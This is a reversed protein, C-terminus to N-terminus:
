ELEVGPAPGVSEPVFVWGRAVRIQAGTGFYFEVDHKGSVDLM